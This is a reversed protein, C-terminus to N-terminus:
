GPRAGRGGACSAPRAARTARGTGRGSCKRGEIRGSEIHGPRAPWPGRGSRRQSSPWREARDPAVDVLARRRSQPPPQRALGAGPARADRAATRSSAGLGRRGDAVVPVASLLQGRGPGTTRWTWWRVVGAIRRSSRPWARARLAHTERQPGSSAGLGRRGDAVVPVGSLLRGPGPGTTRWTWWRVVGAIRRPTARGPGRGSRTRRESRDPEIHGPRAPWRGRGSRRQSAPWSGARDHAVAALACRPSGPALRGALEAGPARADRAATREIHGPRAPWRDRGSRRQCAPWSRARDHAVAALRRVVGAIRRSNRPWARARLTHAGRRDPALHGLCLRVSRADLHRSPVPRSLRDEAGHGITCEGLPIEEGYFPPFGAYSRTM